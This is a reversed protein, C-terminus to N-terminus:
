LAVNRKFRWVLEDETKKPVNKESNCVVYICFFYFLRESSYYMYEFLSVHSWTLSFLWELWGYIVRWRITVLGLMGLMVKMGLQDPRKEWAQWSNVSWYETPCCCNYSIIGQFNQVGKATYLFVHLGGHMIKDVQLATLYPTQSARYNTWGQSTLSAVPVVVVVVMTLLTGTGM